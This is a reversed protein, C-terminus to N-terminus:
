RALVKANKGFHEWACCWPNEWTEGDKLQPGAQWREIDHQRAMPAYPM